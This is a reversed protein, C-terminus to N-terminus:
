PEGANTSNATSRQSLRLRLDNRRTSGALENSEASAWNVEREIITLPRHKVQRYIRGLYEGIIGLFLANLSLSGLILIIVTAFGPPWNAGFFLRGIGYALIAAFTLVSIALGLYTAIRLPVVSHNLIGDLALGILEGFSFKSQGRQRESRDYPIGIQEFGLSAITGRLYPQNDEFKQLEDLVCRDLLRFDGADLPLEDESLSDIIRYFMKRVFNMWWSEKRSSRVGYVVKYGQEWKRVFDLILAPPDQLDCDIQIAADGRANAYGTAISRQFGFNRSFRIARVRVDRAALRELAEFTHDTSHNDTFLLEFDYRDSLQDMIPLLAAYLPEINLEENFVPVCITVLRRGSM